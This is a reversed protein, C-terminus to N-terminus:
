DAAVLEHGWREAISKVADGQSVHMSPALAYSLASKCLPAPVYHLGQFLTRATSCAIAHLGLMISCTVAPSHGWASPKGWEHFFLGEPRCTTGCYLQPLHNHERQHAAFLPRPKIM